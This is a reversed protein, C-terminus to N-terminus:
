KVPPVPPTPPMPPAPPVQMFFQAIEPVSEAPVWAAFGEKWVLDTRAFQGASICQQVQAVTMPGMQQGNVFLFWASVPPPTPAHYQIQQGMVQQGMGFAATGAAFGMGLNAASSMANDSPTNAMTRLIEVQQQALWNSGLTDMAMKDMEIKARQEERYAIARAQAETKTNLNDINQSEYRQRWEDEVIHITSISFKLLELGYDAFSNQVENGVLEGIEDQRSAIGLIEKGSNNIVSAITSKIYSMMESLFYDNLNSTSFSTIGNGLLKTLFRASDGVSIKFAGSARLSTQINLVSDRVQIPNDTGWKVEVSSAVRVFYVRCNFTSDGDTFLRILRQLFPYNETALEYTGNTFVQEIVGNKVFIAEEGPQVILTSRTCFDEENHLCVMNGSISANKIVSPWQRKPTKSKKSFLGM